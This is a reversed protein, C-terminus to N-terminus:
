RMAKNVMADQEADTTRDFRAKCDTSCFAVNHDDHMSTISSNAQMGCVPCRTNKVSARMTSDDSSRDHHCAGLGAFAALICAATTLRISKKM